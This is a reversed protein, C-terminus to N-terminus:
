FSWSQGITEAQPAYVAANPIAAAPKVAEQKAVTEWGEQLTLLLGLVEAIPEDSRNLNAQLLRATTYGYLESLRVATEGGSSLDLSSTLEALVDCAKSLAACREAVNGSALFARANRLESIAKGYLLCVLRLPSASLIEEEFYANYANRM